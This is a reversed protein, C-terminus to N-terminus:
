LSGKSLHNVCPMAEWSQPQGPKRPREKVKSAAQTPEKLLSPTSTLNRTVMEGRTVNQARPQLSKNLMTRSPIWLLVTSGAAEWAWRRVSSSSREGAVLRGNLMFSRNNVACPDRNTIGFVLGWTKLHARLFLSALLKNQPCSEQTAVESQSDEAKM